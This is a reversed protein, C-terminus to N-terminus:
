VRSSVMQLGSRTETRVLLELVCDEISRERSNWWEVFRVVSCRGVLIMSETCGM